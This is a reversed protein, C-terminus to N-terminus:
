KTLFPTLALGAALLSAALRWFFQAYWAEILAHSVQTWQTFGDPYEAKQHIALIRDLEKEGPLKM